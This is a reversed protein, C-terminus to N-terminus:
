GNRAEQGIRMILVELLRVPDDASTKMGRDTELILELVKACFRQSVKGAATMSKKAAYEGLGGYLKMLDSATRGSDLLTRAASIRRFHGGITGLILLPEEQMQILQKLKVLAAGYQGETMLNTMQFGVADLVPETVADIDSKVITPAGSYSCIKSIEGRLATMTGGTIEILYACLDPSIQKGNAAFHRTVWITLDRISQKQFQVVTGRKNVTEWFKKYRKDPKWEVTQYTFVVTCYDPIDSFVEELRNRDPEPLKFLDVEDVWVYTYEAMMPLNDVADCFTQVEFNEQNFRHYNFSETLEDVLLKRLQELYHHMLFTEEGHFIYLRDPTKNRISQKLVQLQDPEETKKAVTEGGLCSRGMRMPAIYRVGM